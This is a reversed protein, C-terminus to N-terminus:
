QFDSSEQLATYQDTLSCKNLLRPKPFQARDNLLFIHHTSLPNPSIEPSSHGGVLYVLHLAEKQFSPVQMRLSFRFNVSISSNSEEPFFCSARFLTKM